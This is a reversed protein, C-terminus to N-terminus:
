AADSLTFSPITEATFEPKHTAKLDAYSWLLKKARNHHRQLSVNVPRFNFIM